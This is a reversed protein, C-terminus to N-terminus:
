FEYIFHITNTSCPTDYFHNTNRHWMAICHGNGGPEASSWTIYSPKPFMSTNSHHWTIDEIGGGSIRRAGLWWEDENVPVHLQLHIEFYKFQANFHTVNM